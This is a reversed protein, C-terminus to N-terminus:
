AIIMDKTQKASELFLDTVTVKAGLKALKLALLRGLGSGAGTIFVHKGRVSNKPLWGREKAWTYFAYLFIFLVLWNRKRHSAERLLALVGQPPRQKPLRSLNM